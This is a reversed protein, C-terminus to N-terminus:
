TFNRTFNIDITVRFPLPDIELDNLNLIKITFYGAKDVTWIFSPTGATSENTSSISWPIICADGNDSKAKLETASLFGNWLEITVDKSSTVYATINGTRCDVPIALYAYPQTQDIIINLTRHESLVKLNSVPVSTVVTSQNVPGVHYVATGNRGTFVLPLYDPDNFYSILPCKRYAQPMRDDGTCAWPVSLVYTVGKAKLYDISEKISMPKYLPASENGDLHMINRQIYYDKIDLTAVRATQPTNENIWAWADGEGYLRSLYQSQTEGDNAPPKVTNIYPIMIASSLIILAILAASIVRSWQPKRLSVFGLYTCFIIALSPAAIILYRPFAVYFGMIALCAFVLYYPLIVDFKRRKSFTYYVIGLGILVVGLKSLASDWLFESHLLYQQFHGSTSALLTPNLYKGFGLFPYVPNGLLFLNRLYWPAVLAFGLTVLAAAHKWGTKRHVAYILPIGLAFLGIYSTLAAFGCFLVGIVEYKKVEAPASTYAKYFYYAGSTLMLTLAMLYSEEIFLEWFFPIAALLCAAYVSITRNRSLLLAFKYTALVTAVGCLPALLRYYFDNASGAFTYLLVATLQVGPPYSASMELGISPGAILPINGKEFIIKAYNVGYALSDWENPPLILTKYLASAGLVCILVVLTAQLATPKAMKLNHRTFSLPRWGRLLAAGILAISLFLQTLLVAYFSVDWLVGLLIMDFLALGIGLGITLLLREAAGVSGRCLALSFFYGNVLIFVFGVWGWDLPISELYPQSFMNFAVFFAAVSILLVSAALM